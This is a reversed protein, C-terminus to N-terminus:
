RPKTSEKRAVWGMMSIDSGKLRVGNVDASALRNWVFRELQSCLDAVSEESLGEDVRVSISFEISRM